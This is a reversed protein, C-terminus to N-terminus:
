LSAAGVSETKKQIHPMRVQKQDVIMKYESDLKRGPVRGELTKDKRVSGGIKSAKGM